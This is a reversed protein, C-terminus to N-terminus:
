DMLGHSDVCLDDYDNVYVYYGLADELDELDYQCQESNGYRSQINISYHPCLICIEDSPTQKILEKCRAIDLLEFFVNKM